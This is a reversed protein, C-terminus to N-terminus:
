SHGNDNARVVTYGGSGDPRVCWGPPWCHDADPSLVRSRDFSLSDESSFTAGGFWAPGSFTADDFVVNGSFTADTFEAPGRFKAGGFLAPGSFIAGGFDASFTAESFTAESFEASFTAESFEAAFTAESFNAARSFEAKGFAVGGSFAAGGFGAVDSFTAREFSARKVLSTASFIAREFFAPGSFIADTFAAVDSFIAREFVVNSFTAKQFVVNSFTAKYFTAPGSFTAGSFWSDGRFTAGDFVAQAVAFVCDRRGFSILTAGGLDVRINPWFRPNPPRTFRKDRARDDNLHEDLIRLATLRVQREQRWTDGGGDTRAEIGTAPEGQEGATAPEPKGAPAAPSFPMRLYACIVDVITQRREPKEQALRELSYLAGLRVPAKEHGLQEVAQAYLEREYTRDQEARNQRYTRYTVILGGAVALGALAQVLTTRVDNRAKLEDAASLGNYPHRILLAPAVLVVFVLVGLLAAVALAGLL